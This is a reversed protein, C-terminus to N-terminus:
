FKSAKAEAYSRPVPVTSAPIALKSCATKHELNEKAVLLESKHQLQSVRIANTHSLVVANALAIDPAYSAIDEYSSLEPSEPNFETVFDQLVSLERDDLLDQVVDSHFMRDAETTAQRTYYNFDLSHIRALQKLDASRLEKAAPSDSEDFTVHLSVLLKGTECDLVNYAHKTEAYGVFIGRIARVDLKQRKKRSNGAKESSRVRTPVHVYCVSGFVKMESVDPEYGNWLKFPTTNSSASVARNMCFVACQVAYDWLQKPLGAQILMTRARALIDRFRVEAFGNQQSTMTTTTTHEIGERRCFAVIQGDLFEGGNDTHLNKLPLNHKSEIIARHEVIIKGTESKENLIHAHIYRSYRDVFILVYKGGSLSPVEMPGCLDSHVKDNCKFVPSTSLPFTVRKKQNGLQCADCVWKSIDVDPFKLGRVANKVLLQKMTSAAPHGLRKHWLEFSPPTVITNAEAVKPIHNLLFLANSPNPSSVIHTEGRKLVVHGPKSRFDFDISYESAKSARPISFLNKACKPVFLVDHLILTICKEKGESAVTLRVTGIGDAKVQYDDPLNVMMNTPKIEDFM